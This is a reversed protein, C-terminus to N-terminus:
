DEVHRLRVGVRVCRLARQRGEARRRRRKARRQQRPLSPSPPAGLPEGCGQRLSQEVGDVGGILLRAGVHASHRSICEDQGARVAGVLRSLMLDLAHRQKVVDPLDVFRQEVDDVLACAQGSGLAFGNRRVGRTTRRHERREGREVGIERDAHEGMVFPPVAGPVRLAEGARADRVRRADDRHSVREVGDCLVPAVAPRPSKPVTDRGNTTTSPGLEIRVEDVHEQAFVHLTGEGDRQPARVIRRPV